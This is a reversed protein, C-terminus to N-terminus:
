CPLHTQSLKESLKLPHSVLETNCNNYCVLYHSLYISSAHESCIVFFWYSAVDYSMGRGGSERQSLASVLASNTLDVVRRAKRLPFCDKSDCVIANVIVLLSKHQTNVSLKLEINILHHLSRVRIYPLHHLLMIVENRLVLSLGFAHLRVRPVM